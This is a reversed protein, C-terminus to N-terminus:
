KEGGTLGRRPAWGPLYVAWVPGVKKCIELECPDVDPISGAGLDHRGTRGPDPESRPWVRGIGARALEAHCPGDAPPTRRSRGRGESM